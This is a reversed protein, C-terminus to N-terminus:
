KLSIRAWASSAANVDLWVFATRRYQWAMLKM